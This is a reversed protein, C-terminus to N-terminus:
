IEIVQGPRMGTFREPPVGHIQLAATLAAIPADHAETTLQFTGWHHGLAQQAGCLMMARVSEDPNMHQSSM